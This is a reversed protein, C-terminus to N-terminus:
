KSREVKKKIKKSVVLLGLLVVGCLCSTAGITAVLNEASVLNWNEIHFLNFGLLLILLLLFIKIFM